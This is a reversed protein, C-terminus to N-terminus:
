LILDCHSAVDLSSFYLEELPIWKRRFEEAKEPGNRQLIREMQTESDVDLFVRLDYHSRLSPHCAYSGEVITVAARLLNVPECLTMTRCSFPRYRVAKGAALPLLVEALFREHDVNEGPTSLREPTRQEPRLFFDDMHIVPYGFEQALAASLTSKGAGCRGDIAVIIRDKRGLLLEIERRIVQIKDCLEMM